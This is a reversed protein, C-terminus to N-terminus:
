EPILGARTDIRKSRPWNITGTRNSRPGKKVTGRYRCYRGSGLTTPTWSVPLPHNMLNILGDGQINTHVKALTISQSDRGKQIGPIHTTHIPHIDYTTHIHIHKLWARGIQKLRARGIKGTAIHTYEKSTNPNDRCMPPPSAM